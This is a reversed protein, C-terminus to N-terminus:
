SMHLDRLSFEDYLNGLNHDLSADCLDAVRQRASATFVSSQRRTLTADESTWM